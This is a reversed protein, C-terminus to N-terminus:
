WTVLQFQKFVVGPLPRVDLTDLQVLDGLQPRYDKPKRVAYPRRQHRKRASIRSRPPERLLGRARLRTLIRGVMSTSAKCGERRLLVALKDKGWRPYRERLEQVAQVLEVSWTPQRRRHPKRSRPELGAVGQQQLRGLWRYLTPRSLVLLDSAKASSLGEERLAQWALVLRLREHAKASLDIPRRRALQYFPKPLGVVRM